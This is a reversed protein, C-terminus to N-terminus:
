GPRSFAVPPGAWTISTVMVDMGTMPAQVVQGGGIYMAEHGLYGDYPSNYFVIDGPQLEAQTIHTTAGYQSVSYHPIDVGAAQWSYMVLGSCDFSDPGAAGWVYPKGVQAMATQVAVAAEQSWGASPPPPPGSPPPPVVYSGAGPTGGNSASASTGSAQESQAARAAAAAQQAAAARAAAQERQLEIAHAQALLQQQLNAKVSGLQANESAVAAQAQQRTTQLSALTAQETSRERSLVAQKQSVLHEDSRYRDIAGSLQADSVQQYEARAAENTMDTSFILAYSVANGNGMYAALADSRLQRRAASASAVAAALQSRVQQLQDQTTQYSTQAQDYLYSLHDIQASTTAIQSALQNAQAQDSAISGAFATGGALLCVSSAAVSAVIGVAMAVLASRRGAGAARLRQASLLRRRENGVHRCTRM